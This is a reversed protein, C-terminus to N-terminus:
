VSVVDRMMNQISVVVVDVDPNLAYIEKMTEDFNVCYGVLAYALTDAFKGVTESPIISEDVNNKIIDLVYDRAIDYYMDVEPSITSLDNSFIGEALLNLMYTGFNNMGIDVTILHAEAVKDQTVKRLTALLEEPTPEHDYGEVGKEALLNWEYIAAGYYWNSSVGDGNVDYLWTDTYSDGMYSDDLLFHLEEARWSSMAVQSLNVNYNKSLADRILAPYSSPTDMEYGYRNDTAKEFPAEYVNEFNYGHIGYGNVNSAGLAVYNFEPKESKASDDNIASAIVGASSAVVSLCLSLTIAMSSIKKIINKIM